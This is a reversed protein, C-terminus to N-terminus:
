RPPDDRKRFMGLGYISGAMRATSASQSSLAETLSVQNGSLSLRDQERQLNSRTPAMRAFGIFTFAAGIAYVWQPGWSIFVVFAILAVADSLALRLFFRKRYSEALTAPSTVDLTRQVFAQAVLSTVGVAVVVGISRATPGPTKADGLIVVVAGIAVIAIPFSIFLRRLSVLLNGSGSRWGPDEDLGANELIDRVM